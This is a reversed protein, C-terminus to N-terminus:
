KDATSPRQKVALASEHETCVRWYDTWGLGHSGEARSSCSETRLSHVMRNLTGKSNSFLGLDALFAGYQKGVSLMGTTSSGQLVRNMIIAEASGGKLEQEYSYQLKDVWATMSKKVSQRGTASHLEKWAASDSVAWRPEPGILDEKNLLCADSDLDMANERSVRVAQRELIKSWLHQVAAANEFGERGRDRLLRRIAIQVYRGHIGGQLRMGCSHFKRQALPALLALIEQHTHDIFQLRHPLCRELAPRLKLLKKIDTECGALIFIVKGALTKIQTILFDLVATANFYDEHVLAFADDILLAGGGSKVVMDLQKRVGSAGERMLWSWTVSHLRKGPLVHISELYKAYLRAVTQKGTGPNGIMILGLNEHKMDLGKALLKDIREKIYLIKLKVDELGTLSMLADLADNYKQGNQKQNEWQKQAACRANEILAQDAVQDTEQWGTESQDLSSPTDPASGRHSTSSIDSRSSKRSDPTLKAWLRAKELERQKRQLARVREEGARQDAIKDKMSQIEQDLEAIAAEHKAKESDVKFQRQIQRQMTQQLTSDQQVCYRCTGDINEHCKSSQEHGAPCSSQIVFDCNMMSHDMDNHCRQPCTHSGCRLLVGCPETCGGDPCHADFEEPRKLIAQRTSHRECKVPFGDYVHNGAKLLEIFREWIEQGRRSGLFTEANGIMILANRARSLMVNLREPSSMFGIEQRTNSRTLSVVVIDSEEGQYNDITAIKIPPKNVDATAAPMLGARVLDHSDLDNLIADNEKSLEDLLLGLQGLYPTLIVINDTRYGQQGLYRVCKLAMSAEFQNQRSAFGASPQNESPELEEESHNVFILNDQFGRLDPRGQTKPADVLDPYTLQRALASIEPRMRHQQSLVHHPYGKLVLREFLSRNLDYGDGNEVSLDWHVKPRLQKHDGILVMQKTEPGLATLIHSELIEGAEEVLLVDPSVSQILHVYKAAATTTCGIIRKQQIIRQDKEIAIADVQELLSNYTLGTERMATVRDMLIDAKWTDYADLRNQSRMSWVDWYYTEAERKYIGADKGRYWRDLLYFENMTKGRRGLRMNRISEDPMRFAEAFPPGDMLFELYEMIDSKTVIAERFSEFAASLKQGEEKLVCKLRKLRQFHDSKPSENSQIRQISLPATKPTAKITAGLRVVDYAPIGSDLLDELFQDLAHHTQCVVLTTHRTFKHMAKAILSGIFSKGTGPPGQILTLRKQLGALFCDAQSKDLRINRPYDLGEKLDITYDKELEKVLSQLKKPLGSSPRPVDLEKNWHLIEDELAIEKVEKLQQLVPEYSFVATSLQILRNIKAARLRPLTTEMATETLKLCIIPPCQALLKEDRVITALGVIEHEALLCVVSQHKLFKPNEELFELRSHNESSPFHPLDKTCRLQLAWTQQGDCLVGSLSVNDIVLSRRGHRKPSLTASIEERLERILDERLLRFQNDLHLALDYKPVDNLDVARRLFPDKSTLEDPTPLIRIKRIDPFDNDHRGGPGDVEVRGSSKITEAIHILRHTRSRVDVRPSGLLVKQIQSEGAVAAFPRARETPLSLLQLLLWSFADLGDETVNEQRVINLFANWILPPDVLKSIIQRLVDGACINKIAPAQLYQLFVTVPGNLFGISPEIQLSAQLAPFGHESAILRLISGQPDSQDCIAELFLRANGLTIPQSGALVKELLDRLKSSRTLHQSAGPKSAPSDNNNGPAIARPDHAKEKSTSGRAMGLRVNLSEVPSCQTFKSISGHDLRALKLHIWHSDVM